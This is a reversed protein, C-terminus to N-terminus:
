ILFRVTTEMEFLMHLPDMQAYKAFLSLLIGMNKRSIPMLVEIESDFLSLLQATVANDFWCRSYLFRYNWLYVNPKYKSPLYTVCCGGFLLLFFFPFPPVILSGQVTVFLRGFVQPGAVLDHQQESDLAFVLLFLM